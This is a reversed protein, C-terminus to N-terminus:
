GLARRGGGAVWDQVRLPGAQGPEARQGEEGAVDGPRHWPDRQDGAAQGAGVVEGDHGVDGAGGVLREALAGRAQHRGAVWAVGTGAPTLGAPWMRSAAGTRATVQQACSRSIAWVMGDSVEPGGGAM